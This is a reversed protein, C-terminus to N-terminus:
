RDGPFLKSRLHGLYGPLATDDGPPFMSKIRWYGIYATYTLEATRLAGEEPTGGRRLLDTLTEVKALAHELAYPAVTADAGAACVHAFLRGAADNDFMDSVVAALADRATLATDALQEVRAAEDDRWAGLAARLLEDRDRFHSYFSGKTVGLGAALPEVAVAPVGDRELAGLAADIWDRASLRPRRSPNRAGM